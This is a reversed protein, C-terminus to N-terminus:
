YLPVREKERKEKREKRKRNRMTEKLFPSSLHLFTHGPTETMRSDPYGNHTGRSRSGLFPIDDKGPSSVDEPLLTQV